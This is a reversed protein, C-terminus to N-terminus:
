SSGVVNKRVRIAPIGLLGTPITDVCLGGTSDPVWLKFVRAMGLCASISPGLRDTATRGVRRRGWRSSWHLPCFYYLCLCMDQRFDYWKWREPSFCIVTATSVDRYREGVPLFAFPLRM